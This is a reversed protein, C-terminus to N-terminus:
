TSQQRRDYIWAALLLVGALVLFGALFGWRLWVRSFIVFALVGLAACGLIIGILKLWAAGGM